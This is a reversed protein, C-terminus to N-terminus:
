FGQGAVDAVPAPEDAMTDAIAPAEVNEAREKLRPKYGAIKM